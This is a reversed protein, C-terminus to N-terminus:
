ATRTELSTAVRRGNDAFRRARALALALSGLTIGQAYALGPNLALNFTQATFFILLGWLLANHRSHRATHALNARWLARWIKGHMFLYLLTGLLGYKYFTGVLGLDSPFFFPAVLSQYSQTSSRAVPFSLCSPM